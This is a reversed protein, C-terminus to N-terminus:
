ISYQFCGIVACGWLYHREGDMLFVEQNYSFIPRAIMTRALCYPAALFYIDRWNKEQGDAQLLTVSIVDITNACFSCNPSQVM